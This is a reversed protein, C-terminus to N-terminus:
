RSFCFELRKKLAERLNEESVPEEKSMNNDITAECQSDFVVYGLDPQEIDNVIGTPLPASESTSDLYEADYGKGGSSPVDSFGLLSPM